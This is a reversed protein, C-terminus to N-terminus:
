YTRSLIEVPDTPDVVPVLFCLRPELKDGDIRNERIAQDKFDRWAAQEEPLASRMCIPAEGDWLPAGDCKSGSRVQSWFFGPEVGPKWKLGAPVSAIAAYDAARLLFKILVSGLTARPARRAAGRSTRWGRELGALGGPRGM